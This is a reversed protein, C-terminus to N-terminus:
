LGRRAVSQGGRARCGRRSRCARGELDNSAPDADSRRDRQGIAPRHRSRDRRDLGGDRNSDRRRDRARGQANAGAAVPRLRRARRSTRHELARPTGSVLNLGIYDAGAATAARVGDEDVIGCIKVQPERDAAALDVPMRGAAVFAATAAAPDQARMLAEGILAADFGLARWRVLTSPDSVGSEAVVLRDDPVSARLRDARTVDVELTGLDRNNIGILLADSALARDLERVDHAEVFPELGLSRAESVLARLERSRHLVALLLVLDAGADRLTALQEKSVVFDKALVPVRVAARVARLDEVSGNFWHPECLVSIAAAGGREYARARAVIDDNAGLEGSSPSRRKVEAIVHLGPRALSPLLPRPETVAGAERAALQRAHGNQAALDAARRAAIEHVIGRGRIAVTMRRHRHDHGRAARAAQGPTGARTGRRDDGRGTCETVWPGRAGRLSLRPGPTSCCSTAGRVPRATSCPRSSGPTRPRMGAACSRVRRACLAWHLATSAGDVCVPRCLRRLRRRKRGLAARRRGDGHVVLAREVGLGFLVHAVKNAASPDAVGIVQRRVGAPNTMPGLLNFATPVGLERRVPGAHRMAPHYSPAFLFAFGDVGAGQRGSRAFPRDSNGAGGPRRGLRDGVVHSPQRAQGGPVGAAAVVLAAATSINFTRSGDGGTGCTDIAGDPATVPLVRERMAMAFGTLEDVTEGRMRLALLLGGLQAPTAEGDMVQAMAAHADDARSRAAAADGELHGCKVADSM